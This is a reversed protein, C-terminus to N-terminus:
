GAPFLVSVRTGSRGSADEIAITAGHRQAIERVIALGLGSGEGDANNLRQFREFVRSREAPPIGPGDDSVELLSHGGERRTRVRVNRAGYRAANDVLNTALEGVLLASGEIPAKELDFEVEVGRPMATRVWADAHGEVIGALDCPERQAAPNSVPDAAAMSLIQQALRALRAAGERAKEVHTARAADGTRALDLQTVIGAIPTRLQHAANAIFRAQTQQAEQLRALMENLEHVLPRLEEVVSEESVPRLHRHSRAQLERRLLDVPLLGRGVGIIISALAAFTLFIVPAIASVLANRAATNRKSTTEAAVIVLPRGRVTAHLAVMRLERAGLRANWFLPTDGEFPPAPPLGADGALYRGSVDLVTYFIRESSDSRLVADAQATFALSIRTDHMEVYPVVARAIDGLDRDYAETLQRTITVYAAGAAILGVGLLPPMLWVILRTRLSRM